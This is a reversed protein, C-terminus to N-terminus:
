EYNALYQLAIDFLEERDFYPRNPIDKATTIYFTRNPGKRKGYLLFVSHPQHPLEKQGRPLVGIDFINQPSDDDVGRIGTTMLVHCRQKYLIKLAFSDYSENVPQWDGQDFRPIFMAPKKIKEAQKILREALEEKYKRQTYYRQVAPWSIDIRDVAILEEPKAEETIERVATQLEEWFNAIYFTMNLDPVFFADIEVEEDKQKVVKKKELSYGMGSLFAEMKDECDIVHSRSGKDRFFECVKILQHTKGSGPPGMLLIRERM